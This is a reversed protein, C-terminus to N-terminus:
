KQTAALQPWEDITVRAVLSTGGKGDPQFVMAEGAKIDKAKDGFAAMLNPTHTILVTNTGARPVSAAAHTLWAAHAKNEDATMGQAGETLEAVPTAHPLDAYKVTQLARFTQSSAVEGIPIRLAKLAKGMATSTEKGAADLQRELKVNDPDAASKDPVEFPSSAHRMALVYGGHRLANVLAAGALQDARAPGPLALALLASLGLLAAVLPRLRLAVRM